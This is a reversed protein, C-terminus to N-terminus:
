DGHAQLEVSPLHPDRHPNRGFVREPADALQDRLIRRLRDLSTKDLDHAEALRAFTDEDLIDRERYEEYLAELREESLSSPDIDNLGLYRRREVDVVHRIVVLAVTEIGGRQGYATLDIDSMIGLVRDRQWPTLDIANCLAQTTRLKDLHHARTSYGATAAHQEDHLRRVSESLDADPSSPRGIVTAAPTVVGWRRVTSDRTTEARTLAGAGPRADLVREEVAPDDDWRIEDAPTHSEDVVM